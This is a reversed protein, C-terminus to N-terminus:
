PAAAATAAGAPATQAPATGSSRLGLLAGWCHRQRLQSPLQHCRAVLGPVPLWWPRTVSAEVVCVVVPGAAPAPMELRMAGDAQRTTQTTTGATWKNNFHAPLPIGLEPGCGICWMAFGSALRRNPRMWHGRTLAGLRWTGAAAM